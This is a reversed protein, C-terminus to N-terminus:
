DVNPQNKRTTDVNLEELNDENTRHDLLNCGATYKMFKM